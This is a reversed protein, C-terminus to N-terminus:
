FGFPKELFCKETIDYKLSGVDRVWLQNLLSGYPFHFLSERCGMVEWELETGWLGNVGDRLLWCSLHASCSCSVRSVYLVPCVWPHKTVPSFGTRRPSPILQARMDIHFCFDPRKPYLFCLISFHARLYLTVSIFQFVWVIGLLTSM